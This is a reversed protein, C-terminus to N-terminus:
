GVLALTELDYVWMPRPKREFLIRFSADLRLLTPREDPGSDTKAM